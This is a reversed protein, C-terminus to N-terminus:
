QWMAAKFQMISQPGPVWYTAHHLPTLGNVDTWNIIDLSGSDIILKAITGTRELASWHLPTLGGSDQLKAEAGSTLLLQAMQVNEQIAAIHLVSHGDQDQISLSAGSEILVRALKTHGSHIAIHLPTRGYNDQKNIDIGTHILLEATTIQDKQVALHLPNEGNYNPIGIRTLGRLAVELCETYGEPALFHILSNGELDTSYVDNPTCLSTGM